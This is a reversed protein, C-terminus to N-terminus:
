IQSKLIQAQLIEEQMVNLKNIPNEEDNEDVVRIKNFKFGIGPKKRKDNILNINMTRSYSPLEVTRIYEKGSQIFEYIGQKDQEDLVNDMDMQVLQIKIKFMMDSREKQSMLLPKKEKIKKGM